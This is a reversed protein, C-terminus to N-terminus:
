RQNSTAQKNMKLNCKVEPHSLSRGQKYCHSCVHKYNGHNFDHVCSGENYYRCIRVKQQSTVSQSNFVAVQSMGIRNLAWQTDNAWSLRGDEVQTMSAAWASRVAPWPLSVADTLAMTVQTLMRRMLQSDQILLINSLQGSAWQALSLEDCSPKKTAGTSVYGENPWRLEPKVTCTDTTNYRGSKKRMCDKGQVVDQHTQEEYQALLKSVASSISPISRVTEVSPVIADRSAETVEMHGTSTNSSLPRPFSTHSANPLSQHSVPVGGGGGGHHAQSHSRQPAILSSDRGLRTGQPLNFSVTERPQPSQVPTSNTDGGREMRDMRRALDQNAAELRSLASLIAQSPDPAGPAQLVSTFSHPPVSVTGNDSGVQLYSGDAQSRRHFRRNQRPLYLSRRIQLYLHKQGQQLCSLSM